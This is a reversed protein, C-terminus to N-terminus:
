DGYGEPVCYVHNNWRIGDDFKSGIFETESNNDVEDNRYTFRRSTTLAGQPLYTGGTIPISLKSIAVGTMTKGSCCLNKQAAMLQVQGPDKIYGTKPDYANDPLAEEKLLFM